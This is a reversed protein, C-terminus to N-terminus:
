LHKGHQQQKKNKLIQKLSKYDLDRDLKNPYIYADDNVDLIYCDYDQRNLDDAPILDKKIEVQDARCHKSIDFTLQQHIFKEM